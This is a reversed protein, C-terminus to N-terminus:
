VAFPPQRVLAYQHLRLVPWGERPFDRKVDDAHRAAVLARAAAETRDFRALADDILLRRAGRGREGHIVPRLVCQECLGVVATGGTSVLGEALALDRRSTSAEPGSEALRRWVDRGPDPRITLGRGGLVYMCDPRHHLSRGSQTLYVSGRSPILEFEREGYRVVEFSTNSSGM